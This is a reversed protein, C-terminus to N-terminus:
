LKIGISLWHRDNVDNTHHRMYRYEIKICPLTREIITPKGEFSIGFVLTFNKNIDMNVVGLRIAPNIKGFDNLLRLIMKLPIPQPQIITETDEVIETTDTTNEESYLAENKQNYKLNKLDPKYSIGLDMKMTDNKSKIISSIVSFGKFPNIKVSVLGRSLTADNTLEEAYIPETRNTISIEFLENPSNHSSYYLGFEPVIANIGIERKPKTLRRGSLLFNIGIGGYLGGGLMLSHGVKVNFLSSDPPAPAYFIGLGSVGYGNFNHSIDAFVAFSDDLPQYFPTINFAFSKDQMGLGAPNDFLVQPTDAFGREFGNIDVNLMDSSLICILLYIVM